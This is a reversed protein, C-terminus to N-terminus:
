AHVDTVVFEGDKVHVHKACMPSECEFGPALGHLEGGSESVLQGEALVINLRGCSPCAIYFGLPGGVRPLRKAEGRELRCVRREPEVLRVRM